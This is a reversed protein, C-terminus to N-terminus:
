IKNIFHITANKLYEINTEEFVIDKNTHIKDVYYGLIKHKKVAVIAINCPFNRQDSPFFTTASKELRIKKGNANIFYGQVKDGYAQRAKKNQIVFMTDGDSVCDYNILLKHEMIKNYRKSFIASGLFGNEENDFFIFAVEERNNEDLGALIELLTIVGSTNDNATHQSPKGIFILLLAAIGAIQGITSSLSDNQSIMLVVLSVVAILVIIPVLILINYLIVFMINKPTIFNPFPLSACTDYHATLVVKAKEVDGIVINRSKIFRGGEQVELNPYYSKLFDIFELKQKKRKAHKITKLYYNQYLNWRASRLYLYCTKNM